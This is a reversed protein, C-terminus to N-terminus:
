SFSGLLKAACCEYCGGEPDVYSRVDSADEASENDAHVLVSRSSNLDNYQCLSVVVFVMCRSVVCAGARCNVVTSTGTGLWRTSTGCDNIGDVTSSVAVNVHDLHDRLNKITIGTDIAEYGRVKSSEVAIEKSDAGVYDVGTVTKHIM